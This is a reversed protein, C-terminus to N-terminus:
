VQGLPSLDSVSDQGDQAGRYAPQPQQFNKASIRAVLARFWQKFRTAADLASFALVARPSCEGLESLPRVRVAPRGREAESRVKQDFGLTKKM